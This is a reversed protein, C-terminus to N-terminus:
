LKKGPNTVQPIQEPKLKKSTVTGKLAPHFVGKEDEWGIIRVKTKEFLEVKVGATKLGESYFHAFESALVGNGGKYQTPESKVGEYEIQLKVDDVDYDVKWNSFDIVVGEQKKEEKKEPKKDAATRVTGSTLLVCSVSLLGVVLARLLM